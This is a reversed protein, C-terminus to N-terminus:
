GYANQGCGRELAFRAREMEEGDSPMWEFPLHAAVWVRCRVFFQICIGFSM